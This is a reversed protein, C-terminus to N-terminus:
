RRTRVLCIVSLVGLAVVIVLLVAAVAYLACTHPEQVGPHTSYMYQICVASTVQDGIYVTCRQMCIIICLIHDALCKSSLYM